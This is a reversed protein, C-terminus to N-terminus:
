ALRAFKSLSQLALINFYGSVFYKMLLWSATTLIFM